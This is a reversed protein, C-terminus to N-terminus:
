DDRKRVRFELEVPEERSVLLGEKYKGGVNILSANAVYPFIEGPLVRLEFTGDKNIRASKCGGTSKPCSDDLCGISFPEKSDSTFPKETEDDIVIGKVTVLAELELDNVTITQGSAGSVVTAKADLEPHRTRLNYKTNSVLSLEFKGDSDTNTNEFLRYEQELATVSLGAIPKGTVREIVRGKVVCTKELKLEINGPIKEVMFLKRGFEPHRYMMGTSPQIFTGDGADRRTDIPDFKAHDNIEFRGDSGTKDHLFGPVPESLCMPQWVEVGEIPKGEKDTIRGTLSARKGLSIRWNDKNQL